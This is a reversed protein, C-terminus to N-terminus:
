IYNNTKFVHIIPIPGMNLTHKRKPVYANCPQTRPRIHTKTQFTLIANPQTKSGIHTKIQFALIALNPGM